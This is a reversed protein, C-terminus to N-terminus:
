QVVAKQVEVSLSFSSIMVVVTIIGTVTAVFWPEQYWSPLALRLLEERRHWAQDDIEKLKRQYETEIQHVRHVFKLDVTARAECKEAATGLEIALETSMLQGTFPAADGRNLPVAKLDEDAGRADKAFLSLLLAILIALLIRHKKDKEKMLAVSNM